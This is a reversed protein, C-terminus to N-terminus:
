RGRDDLLFGYAQGAGALHPEALRSEPEVAAADLRRLFPRGENGADRRCSNGLRHARADLADPGAVPQGIGVQGAGPARAAIDGCVPQDRNRPIDVIRGGGGDDAPPEGGVIQQAPQAAYLRAFDHQNGARGATDPPQEALPCGGDARLDDARDAALLLRLDCPRVAADM